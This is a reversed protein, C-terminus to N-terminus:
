TRFIKNNCDIAEKVMKQKLNLTSKDTTVIM